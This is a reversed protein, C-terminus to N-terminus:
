RFALFPHNPAGKIKLMSTVSVFIIGEWFEKCGLQLHLQITKAGCNDKGTNLKVNLTLSFQQPISTPNYTRKVM